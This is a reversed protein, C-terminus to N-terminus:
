AAHKQKAYTWATTKAMTRFRSRLEPITPNRGHTEAFDAVWREVLENRKRGRPEPETPTNNRVPVPVTKPVPVRHGFGFGFATIAVIEFVISYGVAKIVVLRDRVWGFQTGFLTSAFQAVTDADATASKVPKLNLLKREITAEREAFALVNAQKSRCKPWGRPPLPDPAGICEKAADPRAWRLTQQLSALESKLSERETNIEDAIRSSYSTTAAQKGVSTFLTLGTAFVFAVAFGFAAFFRLSKVATWALHGTGLAILMLLPVLVFADSWQGARVDDKLLIFLAGFTSACGMLVSAWSKVHM